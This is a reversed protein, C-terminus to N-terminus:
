NSKCTFAGRDLIFKRSGTWGPPLARKPDSKIAIDMTCSGASVRYLDQGVHEIKDIPHTLDFAAAVGADDLIARLELVRQYQPPLAASASTAHVAAVTLALGAMRMLVTGPLRCACM